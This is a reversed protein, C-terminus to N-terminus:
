LGKKEPIFLIIPYFKTAETFGIFCGDDINIVIDSDVYDKIGVFQLYVENCIRKYFNDGTIEESKITINNVLVHRDKTSIEHTFGPTVLIDYKSKEYVVIRIKKADDNFTIKSNLIEEKQKAGSLNDKILYYVESSQCEIWVEYKIGEM